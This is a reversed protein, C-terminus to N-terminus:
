SGLPRAVGMMMTDAVAQVRGARYGPGTSILDVRKLNNSGPPRSVQCSVTYPPVSFPTGACAAELDDWDVARLRETVEHVATMRDTRLQSARVQSLVYGTAGGMALVGVSLILMAIIVEILSFGERRTSM